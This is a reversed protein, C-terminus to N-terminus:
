PLVGRWYFFVECLMACVIYNGMIVVWKGVFCFERAGWWAYGLGMERSSM